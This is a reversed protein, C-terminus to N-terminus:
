FNPFWDMYSILFSCSTQEASPSPHHESCHTGLDYELHLKHKRFWFVGWSPHHHEAKLEDEKKITFGSFMQSKKDTSLHQLSGSHLFPNNTWSSQQITGQCFYLIFLVDPVKQPICVVWFISKM